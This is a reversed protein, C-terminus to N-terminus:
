STRSQTDDKVTQASSKGEEKVHEASEQATSKVQDAAEGAREKLHQGMEQEVSKAEDMLPQGHEKATEVLSRAARAEKDSAPILSSLVAGAGFAILGAALPNGEARGQVTHAADHAATTVSDAASSTRGSVASGTGSVRDTATGMVSERMRRVRGGMAQKRREVVRGPAVKDALEDLNRSLDERTGAIDSTLQREEASQGM